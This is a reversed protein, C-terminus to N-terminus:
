VLLKKLQNMATQLNIGSKLVAIMPDKKKMRKLVTKITFQDPTLGKKVEKWELPTSVKAGIRPRVAYPAVITQGSRNQLCDIYIRKPRKKPARELSTVESMRRHVIHGIIEAFQRSQEFTYKGHLPILIHLGKGGSTKCFNKIKAKDLIQHLLQALDVVKEFPVDHPDLDIVCYDPKDLNNCRSMFPHLDISGLNIAYLLGEVNDILLYHDIKGGEHKIPFTRIGPPVKENNKQYFHEGEIGNPFRHLIIPRDKLYPLIYPAMKKYYSLLDRKTIKEKPFYIKDPNSLKVTEEPVEKKVSRASKDARLGLFVPHRMRNDKTWELFTVECLLKPEVWTADKVKPADKFPSQKQTLPKLENSIERLTVRSFGGGVSGAYILERKKNYVGVLLSGFKIRSGQPETFGGIVVEQRLSTKVKVWDRSRKSQYTSNMRKGIIGELKAKQAAKFFEDGQELIHNSYRVFSFQYKELLSQLIKKREILPLDRLDKGDKYLLDFVYFVLNGLRTRQYNQMLQFDSKGADNLIVIEGDLIVNEKIKKLDLNLDPFQDFVLNNRSKLVDNFALARFGDWKVEFLWEPDSFPEKILTCLMPPIFDPMRSDNVKKANKKLLLWQKGNMRQLVFEGQFRKGSLIIAFHGKALGNKLYEEMEKKSDGEVTRYTGHDWLEVTGAGYNGVPIVGEFYQYDLPHDEVQIALRKEKASLPLGKPVAWSLLVGKYELRFDYHLHSADHRQVCFALEKGVKTSIKPEPTRKFNRKKRYIKLSM